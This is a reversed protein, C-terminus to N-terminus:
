NYPCYIKKREKKQSKKKIENLFFFKKKKKLVYHKEKFLFKKLLIPNVRAEKKHLKKQKGKKTKKLFFL